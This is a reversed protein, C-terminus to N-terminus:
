AAARPFLTQQASHVSSHESPHLAELHRPNVCLTNECTHHVHAGKPIDGYALVYSIRHAKEERSRRDGLRLRGYVKDNGGDVRAGTWPWCADTGGSKDVRAWFREELTM